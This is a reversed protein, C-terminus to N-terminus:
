PAAPAPRLKISYTAGYLRVATNPYALWRPRVVSGANGLVADVDGATVAVTVNRLGLLLKEAQRALQSADLDIAAYANVDVFAKDHIRTAIAGSVRLVQVLPVADELTSPLKTCVRVEPLQTALWAVLAVEVDPLTPIGVTV